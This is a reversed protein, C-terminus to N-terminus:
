SCEDNSCVPLCDAHVIDPAWDPRKGFWQADMEAQIWTRCEALTLPSSHGTGGNAYILLMTWAAVALM